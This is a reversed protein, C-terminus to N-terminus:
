TAYEIPKARTLEADKNWAARRNVLLVLSM